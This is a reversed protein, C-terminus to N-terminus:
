GLKKELRWVALGNFVVGMGLLFLVDFAFVNLSAGKLFIGRTIIV